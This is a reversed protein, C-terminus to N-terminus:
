PLRPFADTKDLLQLWLALSRQLVILISPSKGWSSLFFESFIYIQGKFLRFFMKLVATITRFIHLGWASLVAETAALGLPLFKVLPAFSCKWVWCFSPSSIRRSIKSAPPAMRSSLDWKGGQWKTKHVNRLQTCKKSEVRRWNTIAKNRGWHNKAALHALVACLDDGDGSGVTQNKKEGWLIESFGM